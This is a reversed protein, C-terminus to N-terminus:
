MNPFFRAMFSLGSVTTGRKAPFRPKTTRRALLSAELRRAALLRTNEDVISFGFEDRDAIPPDDGLMRVFEAEKRGHRRGSRQAMPVFALMGCMLGNGNQKTKSKERHGDIPLVQVSGLPIKAGM